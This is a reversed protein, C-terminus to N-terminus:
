ALKLRPHGRAPQVHARVLAQAAQPPLRTSGIPILLPIVDSFVPLASSPLREARELVGTEANFVVPDGAKGLGPVDFPLQYQLVM